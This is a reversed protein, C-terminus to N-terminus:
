GILKWTPGRKRGKKGTIGDWDGGVAIESLEAEVLPRLRQYICQAADEDICLIRESNRFETHVTAVDGGANLAAPKWSGSSVALSVLARCEEQTFVVDLIAAYFGAYHNLATNSFDILTVIPVM